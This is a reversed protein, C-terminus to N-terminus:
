EQSDGRGFWAEGGKLRHQELQVTPESSISDIWCQDLHPWAQVTQALAIKLRLNAAKLEDLAETVKRETKDM